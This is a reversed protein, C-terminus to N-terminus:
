WFRGGSLVSRDARGRLREAVNATQETTTAEVTKM